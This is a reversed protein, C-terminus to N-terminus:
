KALFGFVNGLFLVNFTPPTLAIFLVSISLSSLILIPVFLTSVYRASFTTVADFVHVGPALPSSHNFAPKSLPLLHFIKRM